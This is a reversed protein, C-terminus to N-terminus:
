PQRHKLFSFRLQLLLKM